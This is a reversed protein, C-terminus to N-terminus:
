EGKDYDYLTKDRLIEKPQPIIYLIDQGLGDIRSATFFKAMNLYTPPVRKHSYKEEAYTKMPDIYYVYDKQKDIKIIIINHLITYAINEEIKYGLENKIKSPQITVIPYTYYEYIYKNIDNIKYENYQMAIFGYQNLYQNNLSEAIHIPSGYIQNDKLIEALKKIRIKLKNIKYMRSLMDLIMKICTPVCYDVEPQHYPTIYFEKLDPAKLMEMGESRKKM